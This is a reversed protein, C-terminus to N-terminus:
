RDMTVSFDVLLLINVALRLCRQGLDTVCVPGARDKAELRARIREGIYLEMVVDQRASQTLQGEQVRANSDVEDILAIFTLVGEFVLTSNTRENFM